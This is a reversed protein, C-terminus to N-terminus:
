YGVEICAISVHRTLLMVLKDITFIIYAKTGFIYRACEEFKAQDISGDFFTDILDLLAYYYGHSFNLDVGLIRYM